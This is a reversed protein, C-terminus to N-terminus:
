IVDLEHVRRREQELRRTRYNIDIHMRHLHEELYQTTANNQSIGITTQSAPVNTSEQWSRAQTM